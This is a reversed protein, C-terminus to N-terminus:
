CRRCISHIWARNATARGRGLPLPQLGGEEGRQHRRRHPDLGSQCCGSGLSHCKKKSKSISAEPPWVLGVFFISSEDAGIFFVSREDSFKRRFIVWLRHFFGKETPKPNDEPPKQGISTETIGTTCPLM